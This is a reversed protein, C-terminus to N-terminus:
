SADGGDKDTLSKKYASSSIGMIVGFFTSIGTITAVIAEVPINWQWTTALLTFLTVFAPVVIVLIWKMVDYFKNNLIM